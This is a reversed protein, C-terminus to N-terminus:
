KIELTKLSWQDLRLKVQRNEVQLEQRVGNSLDFLRAAGEPLTLTVDTPLDGANILGHRDGYKHIVARKATDSVKGAYPKPKVFPLLLFPVAFERMDALRGQYPWVSFTDLRFDRANAHLLAEVLDRRFSRRDKVYTCTWAALPKHGEDYIPSYVSLGGGFGDRIREFGPEQYPSPLIAEAAHIQYREKEMSLCFGDGKSYLAPDLCVLKLFDHYNNIGHAKLKAPDFFVNQPARGGRYAIEFPNSEWGQNLTLYLDPRHRRALKLLWDLYEFRKQCSWKIWADVTAQDSDLLSRINELPAPSSKFAVGTERSFDDLNRKTFFGQASAVNSIESFSTQDALADLVKDTAKAILALEEPIPSLPVSSALRGEHTGSATEFSNYDTGELGLPVFSNSFIMARLGHAAASEFLWRQSALTGAHWCGQAGPRSCGNQGHFLFQAPMQHNCFISDYGALRPFQSIQWPSGTSETGVTLHRRSGEPLLAELRPLEPMRKVLYVSVSKVALGEKDKHWNSVNSFVLSHVPAKGGHETPFFLFFPEKKFKGEHPPKGTDFGGWCQLGWGAGAQSTGSADLRLEHFEGFREKDFAHEVVLLYPTGTEFRRKLDFRFYASDKAPIARCNQGLVTSLPVKGQAPDNLFKLHGFWGSPQTEGSRKWKLILPDNSLDYIPHPDAPNFLDVTELLELDERKFPAVGEDGQDPLSPYWNYTLMGPQVGALPGLPLSLVVALEEGDALLSLQVSDGNRLLLKDTGEAEVGFPGAPTDLTKGRGLEVVLQDVGRDLQSAFLRPAGFMEFGLKAGEPLNNAKLEFRVTGKLEVSHITTVEMRTEKGKPLAFSLTYRLTLTRGDRAVRVPYEGKAAHHREGGLEVFPALNNLFGANEGRTFRMSEPFHLNGLWLGQLTGPKSPSYNATYADMQWVGMNNDVLQKSSRHLDIRRVSVFGGTFGVYFTKVTTPPFDITTQDQPFIAKQSDVAIKKFNGATDLVCAGWAGPTPPMDGWHIVARDVLQTDPQDYTLGCVCKGGDSLWDANQTGGFLKSAVPDQGRVYLDGCLRSTVGFDKGNLHYEGGPTFGYDSTSFFRGGGLLNMGDMFWDHTGPAPMGFYVIAAESFAPKATDAAMGSLALSVAAVMQMLIRTKAM